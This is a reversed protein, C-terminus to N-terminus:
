IRLFLFLLRRGGRTGWKGLLNSKETRGIDCQCLTATAPFCRRGCANNAAPLFEALCLCLHTGRIDALDSGNAPIPRPCFM